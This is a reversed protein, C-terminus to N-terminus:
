LIQVILTKVTLKLLGAHNQFVIEVNFFSITIFQKLVLCLHYNELKQKHVKFLRLTQFLRTIGFCDCTILSSDLSFFFFVSFRHYM